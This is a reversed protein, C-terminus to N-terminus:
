LCPKSSIFGIKRLDVIPLLIRSSAFSSLKSALSKRFLSFCCGPLCGVVFLFAFLRVPRHLRLRPTWVSAEQCSPIPRVCFAQMLRDTPFSGPAFSKSVGVVLDLFGDQLVTERILSSSDHALRHGLCRLCFLLSGLIVSFSLTTLRLSDRSRRGIGENFGERASFVSANRAADHCILRVLDALTESMSATLVQADNAALGELVKLLTCLEEKYGRCGGLAIVVHGCPCM